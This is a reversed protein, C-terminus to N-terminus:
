KVVRHVEDRFIDPVVHGSRVLVKRWAGKGSAGPHEV